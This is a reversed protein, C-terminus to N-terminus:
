DTNLAAPSVPFCALFYGLNAQGIHLNGQIETESLPLLQQLSIKKNIKILM